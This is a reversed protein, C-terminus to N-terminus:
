GWTFQVLRWTEEAGMQAAEIANSAVDTQVTKVKKAVGIGISVRGSAKNNEPTVQVSFAQGDRVVDLGLPVGESRKVLTVFREITDDGASASNLTPASVAEGNVQTIIDNVRLGARVAPASADPTGTILVGPAYVPHNIGSTGAVYSSLGFTLLLNAMVGASIVFARQLPPRNQLLDPDKDAAGDEVANSTEDLNTNSPFAVFGGLPLARLNYEVNDTDNWSLLKPGYGVNFSQIKMGQWKAALFHGAEHFAIVGAVASASGLLPLVGPLGDALMSIQSKVGVRLTKPVCRGKFALGLAIYITFYLILVQFYM